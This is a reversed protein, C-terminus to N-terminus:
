KLGIWKAVTLLKNQVFDGFSGPTTHESATEDWIADPIDVLNLAATRTITFGAGSTDTVDMVGRLAVSGATNTAGLIVQGAVLDLSGITDAHDSNEIEIGGKYGRFHYDNAATGAVSLNPTTTGAVNSSCDEMHLIAGGATPMACNGTLECRFFNGEMESVGDLSCDFAAVRGNMAGSLEVNRFLTGDVDQGALAIVVGEGVGNVTWDDLSGTLTLPGGSTKRISFARFGTSTALTIADALSDVPNTPLGNTGVVTGASGNATDIWVSGLYQTLDIALGFSGSAVHDATAEDWVADAIDAVDGPLVASGTVVLGASNTSVVTVLPTPNM